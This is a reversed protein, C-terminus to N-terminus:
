ENIILTTLLKDLYSTDGSTNLATITYLQENVLIFIGNAFVSKNELTLKGSFKLADFEGFKSIQTTKNSLVGDEYEGNLFENLLKYNDKPDINLNNKKYIKQHNAYKLVYVISGGDETAIYNYGDVENPENKTYSWDKPVLATMKGDPSTIQEWDDTKTTTSVTPKNFNITEKIRELLGQLISITFFVLFIVLIVKNAISTKTKVTKM